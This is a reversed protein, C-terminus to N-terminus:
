APPMVPQAWTLPKERRFRWGRRLDFAAGPVIEVVDVACLRYRSSTGLTEARKTSRGDGLHRQRPQAGEDDAAAFSPQRACCTPSPASARRDLHAIAGIKTIRAM